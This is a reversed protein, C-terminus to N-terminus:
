TTAMRALNPFALQRQRWWAIVAANSGEDLPTGSSLYWLLKDVPLSPDCAAAVSVIVGLLFGQSPSCFNPFWSPHRVSSCSPDINAYSFIIAGAIACLSFISPIVTLDYFLDQPLQVDICHAHCM